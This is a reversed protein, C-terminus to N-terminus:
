VMKDRFVYRVIQDRQIGRAKLQSDTMGSLARIQGTRAMSDGFAEVADGIRSFMSM